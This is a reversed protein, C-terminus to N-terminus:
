EVGARAIFAERRFEKDLLYLFMVAMSDQKEETTNDYVTIMEYNHDKFVPLNGHCLFQQSIPETGAQDVMTTEFGTMWLLERSPADVLFVRQSTFPGQMSKYKADIFRVTTLFERSRIGAEGAAKAGAACPQGAFGALLSALVLKTARQPAM